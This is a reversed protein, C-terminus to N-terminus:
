GGRHPASRWAPRREFVALAAHHQEGGRDRGEVALDALLGVAGDFPPRTPMVSGIARSRACCPMRTQVMAGPRNAVGSIFGSGSGTCCDSAAEIGNGGRSPLGASNAASAQWM